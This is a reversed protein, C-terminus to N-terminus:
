FQAAEIAYRSPTGALPIVKSWHEPEIYGLMQPGGQAGEANIFLATAYGFSTNTAAHLDSVLADMCESHTILVLNRGAVKHKLADHLISGRCDFLWDQTAVPRTFMAKATQRTRTMQSSYIDVNTLGLQKFDAGVIHATRAARETIGDLPGLCPKSSRDCREAHRVLAIVDGKAWSQALDLARTANVPQALNPVAVPALLHLTLMVTLASAAVVVGTNRHRILGSRLKARLTGAFHFSLIVFQGGVKSAVIFRAQHAAKLQM